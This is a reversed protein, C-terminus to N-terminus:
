QTHERRAPLVTEAKKPVHKAIEIDARMHQHPSLLCSMKGVSTDMTQCQSRM